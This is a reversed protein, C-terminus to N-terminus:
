MNGLSLLIIMPWPSFTETKLRKINSYLKSVPFMGQFVIVKIRWCKTENVGYNGSEPYVLTRISGTINTIGNPCVIPLFFYYAYISVENGDLNDKVLRWYISVLCPYGSNFKTQSNAMETTVKLFKKQKTAFETNNVIHCCYYFM